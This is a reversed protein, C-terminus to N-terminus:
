GYAVTRFLWACTARRFAAIAKSPGSSISALDSSRRCPSAHSLCRSGGERLAPPSYCFQRRWPWFGWRAEGGLPEGLAFASLMVATMPAVATFIAAEAGKLQAAGAYWLLFGGVTPVLAYWGVALLASRTLTLAPFEFLAPLLTLLLSLGTLVTAQQLPSLQIRTRKQMLIFASECIVAGLILGLGRLSGPGKGRWVVAVVDATAAFVALWTRSTPREGLVIVAFLASVTPLTGIIIGADMAPIYRLGSILLVTYGVSGAGAQVTLVLWSKLSLAPLPERRLLMLSGLVPLALAFRLSTAAFPPMSAAILKSAIVTTGVTTMALALLLYGLHKDSM